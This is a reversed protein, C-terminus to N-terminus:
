YNECDHTYLECQFEVLWCSSGANGSAIRFGTIRNPYCPNSSSDVHYNCDDTFVTSSYGSEVKGAIINSIGSPDNSEAYFRAPDSAWKAM